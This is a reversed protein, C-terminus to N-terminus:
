KMDQIWEEYKRGDPMVAERLSKAQLLQEKTWNKANDMNALELNANEFNADWFDANKLNAEWLDANGFNANM